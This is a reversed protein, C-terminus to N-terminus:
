TAPSDEHSYNVEDQGYPVFAYPVARLVVEKSRGLFTEM